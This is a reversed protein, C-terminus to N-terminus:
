KDSSDSKAERDIVSTVTGGLKLFQEYVCSTSVFVKEGNLELNVSIQDQITKELNPLQLQLQPFFHPSLM